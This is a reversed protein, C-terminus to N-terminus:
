TRVCDRVGNWREHFWLLSLLSRARAPAAQARRWWALGKPKQIAEPQRRFNISPRERGLPRCASPRSGHECGAFRSQCLLVNLVRQRLRGRGPALAIAVHDDAQRHWAMFYQSRLGARFDRARWQRYPPSTKELYLVLALIGGVILVVPILLM